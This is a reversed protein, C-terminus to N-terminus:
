RAVEGDQDMKKDWPLLGGGNFGEDVRARRVGEQVEGVQHLMLPLGDQVGM